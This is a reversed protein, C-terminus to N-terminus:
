VNGGSFIWASFEAGLIELIQKEAPFGFIECKLFVTPKLFEFHVTLSERLRVEQIELAM